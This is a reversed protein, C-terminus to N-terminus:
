PAAPLVRQQLKRLRLVEKRQKPSLPVAPSGKEVQEALSALDLLRFDSCREKRDFVLYSYLPKFEVNSILALPAGNLTGKRVTIRTLATLRSNAPNHWSVLDGQAYLILGKRKIEGEPAPCSYCEASQLTHSHNGLILDIGAEILRHGTNMVNEIPFSEFELSWHLCAAVLDAKKEKRAFEIQKKIQTIDCGPLNLRLHNVLYERGEPPKSRNLSFTYSLIAVRIGKIDVVPFNDQEEVSRSTGAHIVRKQDLFDLTQLLGEEGMDLAHNNATSYCTIGKGGRWCLDFAEPTNNMAPPSLVNKAISSIEKDAVPAELNACVLDANFFFDETEEWFRAATNRNFHPTPMIDGGSSIVASTEPVFGAPVEFNMTHRAFFEPIGKGSEGEEIQKYFFKYGWWVAEGKEFHGSNGEVSRSASFKKPNFLRFFFLLILIGIRIM